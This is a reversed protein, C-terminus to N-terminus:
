RPTTAAGGPRWAAVLRDGEAIQAPSMRGLITQRTQAAPQNGSAASLSIWKYGEVLDRPTGQGNAYMGGVMFQADAHGQDAALRLLRLAEVYDNRYYAQAGAEANSQAQATSQTGMAAAPTMLLAVALGIAAIM